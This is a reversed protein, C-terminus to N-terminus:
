ERNQWTEPARKCHMVGIVVIKGKETLYFVGYPFRQLLGRRVDKHVKQFIEPNRQILSLVADVSLLFDSGLGESCEEYYQYAERVDEEAEPRVILEVSKNVM